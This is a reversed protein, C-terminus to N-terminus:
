NRIFGTVSGGGGGICVVSISTVGTPAIWNYTGPTTYVAEQGAAIAVYIYSDGSYNLESNTTVVQFGNNLPVIANQGYVSGFTNDPLSTNALLFRDSDPTSGYNTFFGRKGDIIIWDGAGGTVRKVLLWQPAYGISVIPGYSASAGNGIYSGCTIVNTTSGVGFGGANHGFLFAVYQVGNTNHYGVRFSTSGVNTMWANYTGQTDSTNLLVANPWSGGASTNAGVSNHWTMWDNSVASDSQLAKIIIMGPISGLSHGIDRGINGDGTWYVIDFFKSKKQFTWSAYTYGGYDIDYSGGAIDFGTSTFYDVASAINGSPEATQTNSHLISIGSSSTAPASSNSFALWHDGGSTPGRRKIWVLGGSAILDIGNNITLKGGTGTYLYTSFV